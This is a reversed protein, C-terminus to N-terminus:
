INAYRIILDTEEFGDYKTNKELEKFDLSASGCVLEMLEEHRFLIIASDHLVSDFGEQFSSFAAEVSGNLLYEVYLDVFELKIM